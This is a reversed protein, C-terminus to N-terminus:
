VFSTLIVLSFYLSFYVSFYLLNGIFIWYFVCYFYLLFVIFFVVFICCFHSLIFRHGEIDAAASLCVPKQRTTGCLHPKLNLSKAAMEMKRSFKNEENLYTNGGDATGYILTETYNKKLKIFSINKKTKKIKQNKQILFKSILFNQNLFFVEFVFVFVFVFFFGKNVPLVSIAVLRFGRYDVLTMLPFNVGEMGVSCYAM